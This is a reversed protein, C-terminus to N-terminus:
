EAAGSILKDFDDLPMAGRILRQGTRGDRRVPLKGKPGGAVVFYSGAQSRRLFLVAEEGANMAVSHSALMGEQGVQGGLVKVTLPSTATGKFARTPQFRITTEIFRHPADWASDASLCVGLAVVDSAKALRVTDAHLLREAQAPHLWLLMTLLFALRKM